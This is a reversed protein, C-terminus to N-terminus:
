YTFGEQVGSIFDISTERPFRWSIVTLPITITLAWLNAGLVIRNQLVRLAEDQTWVSKGFMKRILRKKVYKEVRSESDFSNQASPKCVAHDFAQM